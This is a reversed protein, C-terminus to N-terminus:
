NKTSLNEKNKVKIEPIMTTEYNITLAIINTKKIDDM